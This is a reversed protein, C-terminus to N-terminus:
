IQSKIVKWIGTRKELSLEAHVTKEEGAEKYTLYVRVLASDENVQLTHFLFYPADNLAGLDRKGILMVSKNHLKLNNQIDVDVGHDLIYYADLSDEGFSLQDWIAANSLCLSLLETPVEEVESPTNPFTSARGLFTIFFLLAIRAYVSKLPFNIRKM